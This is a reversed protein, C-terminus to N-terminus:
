INIYYHIGIFVIKFIFSQLFPCLHSVLFLYLLTFLFFTISYLIYSVDAICKEDNSGCRETCLRFEAQCGILCKQRDESGFQAGAELHQARGNEAIKAKLFAKLKSLPARGVAAPTSAVLHAALAFAVLLFLTQM